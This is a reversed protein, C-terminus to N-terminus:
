RKVFQEFFVGDGADIRLLYMGSPLASIDISSFESGRELWIKGTMDSISVGKLPANYSVNLYDSAPNPFIHIEPRQNKSVSVADCQLDLIRKWISNLLEIGTFDNGAGLGQRVMILGTEPSISIYQGGGGAATYLVEPADPAIWGTFSVSFGPPVFSEQGNLWWLYGYAPNLLQSPSIMQQMYESDDLITNGDWSGLNQILIGFRAMDRTNSFYFNNNEVPFWFGSMGIPSSVKLFTYLNHNMGTASELVNKTLNYPGNHYAWRTGAPELFLLCEPTICTFESEDLGTTMTLQHWVTIRDEQEPTLSSWGSGLYASTQNYIDLDGDAHAIGLLLARLSKSASFWVWLSDATHNGFYQELVIKGDKLILFGRTEEEELFAYLSDIREPCWNLESPDLTEWQTSGVPPFYMSQGLALLPTGVILYVLITKLKSVM